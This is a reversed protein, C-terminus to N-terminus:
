AAACEGTKEDAGADEEVAGPEGGPDDPMDDAPDDTIGFLETEIEGKRRHEQRERDSEAPAVRVDEDPQRACANGDQDLAKETASPVDDEAGNGSDADGREAVFPPVMRRSSM